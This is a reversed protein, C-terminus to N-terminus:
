KGKWVEKRRTFNNRIYSTIAKVLGYKFYKKAPDDGMGSMADQSEVIKNVESEM